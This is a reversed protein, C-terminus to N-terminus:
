YNCLNNDSNKYIKDLTLANATRQASNFVLPTKSSTAEGCKQLSIQLVELKLM